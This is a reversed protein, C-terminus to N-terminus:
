CSGSLRPTCPGDGVSWAGLFEGRGKLCVGRWMGRSRGRQGLEGPWVYQFIPVTDVRESGYPAWVCESSVGPWVGLAQFGLEKGILSKWTVHGVARSCLAGELDARHPTPQRPSPRVLLLGAPAAAPCPHVRAALVHPVAHRGLRPHLRDAALSSVLTLPLPLFPPPARHPTAIVPCLPVVGSGLSRFLHAASSM